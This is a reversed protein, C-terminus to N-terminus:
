DKEDMAKNSAAKVKDFKRDAKPRDEAEYEKPTPEHEKIVKGTDLDTMTTVAAVKWRKPM